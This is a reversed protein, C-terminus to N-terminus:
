RGKEIQDALDRLTKVLNAREEPTMRSVDVGPPLLPGGPPPQPVSDQTTQACPQNRGAIKGSLFDDLEQPSCVVVVSGTVADTLTTSQVVAHNRNTLTHQWYLKGNNVILRPEIADIKGSEGNVWSLNPYAAVVNQVARNVGVYNAGEPPRFVNIQGTRADIFMIKYVGATKGYAEFVISWQPGTTTPLLFPMQNLSGDIEPLQIQDVHWAWYNWIGDKWGYAKAIKRALKEPFLRQGALRPDQQAQEPTLQEITGNPHALLVGGWAPTRYLGWNLKYSIFPAVAFVENSKTDVQYFVEPTDVWYNARRLNWTINDTIGMGEGYRFDVNFNRISCGNAQDPKILIVGHMNSSLYNWFGNPEQPMVWDLEGAVDIPDIDGLAIQSNAARNIACNRAVELPLYRAKATDPLKQIVTPRTQHALTVNAAQPSWIWYGLLGLSFIFAVFEPMGSYPSARYSIYTVVIGAILILWFGTNMYLLSFWFWHFWPAVAYCLLALVVLVLVVAALDAGAPSRESPIGSNRPM